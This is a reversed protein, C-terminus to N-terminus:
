PNVIHIPELRVADHGSSPDILRAGTEAIYMGAELRYLGTPTDPPIFLIYHDTVVEGALWLSTPYAGDKPMVDQQTVMKGTPSLLHVFVTYDQETTALCQWHLTVTLTSGPTVTRPALDYGLLRFEEGLTVNMPYTPSPIDFFRVIPLVSVSGINEELAVLSETGPGLLRLRLPYDRPPLDRPIRPDYRDAIVEGLQWDPFPYTDHVPRGAYILHDGLELSVTYDPRVDQQAHWFLTLYLREGPRIAFTAETTGLLILGDIQIDLRREIGLQESPIHQTPSIISRSLHVPLEVWTGAYRGSPDLRPLLHNTQSSYLSLRVYYEGPPAGLAIPISLHEIIREGTRWQESPYHFPGTDGWPSGWADVLRAIPGYDEAEPRALVHLWVVVEAKEGGAPTGRTNYGEVMVVNGLNAQIAHAPVPRFTAPVRYAVFAPQADPALPGNIKWEDPLVERVWPLDDAASRPFIILANGEPPLVLTQGGVLWRLTPYARALAAVTPHRYHRSAIYVTTDEPSPPLRNLYTAVDAMDGDAADYLAPSSAWRQFYDRATPVALAVALAVTALSEWTARDAPLGRLARRRTWQGLASLVATLGLAPFIYIFPLLGIVRLNSPTIERVALASPLIMVVTNTLLFAQTARYLASTTSSIDTPLRLLNRMTLGVGILFLAATFPDFLPRLPLNFRIYPDGRIFFMGLCARVGAWVEKWSSPAVQQTRTLFSAPHRYWYHALPALVLAAIVVVWGCDLLRRRRAPRPLQALFTALAVALPFPFLRAALYTYATLGLFIGAMALWSLGRRRDGCQAVRLGHWLTAVTLGQLLPQTVARFGYRSFILHWFSTAVFAGCCLASWHRHPHDVLLEGSVWIAVFVTLLGVLAASLRLAFPTAGLLRMWLAAWYFFAVEKGTYSSIFIPRKASSAIEAALIVNAAEDYHLGIPLQSLRYFRLATAVAMILAFSAIFPWRRNPSPVNM